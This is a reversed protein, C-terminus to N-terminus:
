EFIKKDYLRYYETITIYLQFTNKGITDLASIDLIKTCFHEKM